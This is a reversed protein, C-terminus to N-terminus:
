RLISLTKKTERAQTPAARPHFTMSSSAASNQQLRVISLEAAHIPASLSQWLKKLEGQRVALALNADSKETTRASSILHLEAKEVEATKSAIRQRYSELKTQMAAIQQRAKATQAGIVARTEDFHDPTIEFQASCPVAVLAAVIFISIRLYNWSMFAGKKSCGFHVISDAPALV